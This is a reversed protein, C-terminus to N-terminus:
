VRTVRAAVAPGSSVAASIATDTAQQGKDHSNGNQAVVVVLIGPCAVLMLMMILIRVKM